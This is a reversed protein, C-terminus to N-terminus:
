VRKILASNINPLSVFMKYEEFRDMIRNININIFGNIGFGEMCFSSVINAYTVAEIMTNWNMSGLFDIYSILAGIFSVKAGTVDIIQGVPYNALIFLTNKSFLMTQMNSRVIIYDVLKKSLFNKAALIINNTKSYKIIERETFIIVKAKKFLKDYIKIDFESHRLTATLFLKNKSNISNILTIQTSSDLEGIYVYNSDVLNKTEETFNYNKYLDFNCSEECPFFVNEGNYIIKTKTTEKGKLVNIKSTDINREKLFKIMKKPYDEGVVSIIKTKALFSSAISFYVAEGGNNSDVQGMPTKITDLSVKGIVIVSM